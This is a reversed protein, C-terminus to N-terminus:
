SADPRRTPRLFVAPLVNWVDISVLSCDNPGEAFATVQIWRRDTRSLASDDDVSQLAADICFGILNIASEPRRSCLIQADARGGSHDSGM